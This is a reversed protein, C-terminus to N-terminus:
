EEPAVRIEMGDLADTVLLQCALRSNDARHALCDLMDAEDGDPGALADLFGNEVYVHCTACSCCGGCLSSLEDFGGGRLAEMISIGSETRIESRNGGRGHVVITPM